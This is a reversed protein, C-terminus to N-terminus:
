TAIDATADDVVAVDEAAIDDRVDVEADPVAAASEPVTREDVPNRGDALPRGADAAPDGNVSSSTGLASSSGCAVIALALGGFTIVGSRQQLMRGALLCDTHRSKPGREVGHVIGWRHARRQM